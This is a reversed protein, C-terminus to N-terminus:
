QGKLMDDLLNRFAEAVKLKAGLITQDFIESDVGKAFKKLEDISSIVVKNDEDEEIGDSIKVDM